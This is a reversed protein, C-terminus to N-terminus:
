QFRLQLPFHLSYRVHDLSMTKNGETITDKKLKLRDLKSTTQQLDLGHQQSAIHQKKHFSPTSVSYTSKSDKRPRGRRRKLNSSNPFIDGNEM